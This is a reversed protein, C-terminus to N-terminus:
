DAVSLLDVVRSVGGVGAAVKLALEKRQADPLAGRLSVVGDCAEVEVDGAYRGIETLLTGKVQSELASDKAEAGLQGGGLGADNAAVIRNVVKRVGPFSLAVEKALEQTSREALDGVLFVKKGDVLVRIDAADPGLRDVLRARIAAEREAVDDGAVASGAVGVLSALCVLCVVVAHRRSM